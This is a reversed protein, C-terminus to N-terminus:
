AGNQKAVKMSFALNAQGETGVCKCCRPLLGAISRKLRSSVAQKQNSELPSGLLYFKNTLTINIMNGTGLLVALLLALTDKEKKGLELGLSYPGPRLFSTRAM